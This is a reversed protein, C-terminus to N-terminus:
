HLSPEARNTQESSAVDGEQNSLASNNRHGVFFERDNAKDSAHYPENRIQKM